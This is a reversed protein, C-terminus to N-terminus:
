IDIYYASSINKNLMLPITKIDRGDSTELNMWVWGANGSGYVTYSHLPKNDLFSEASRERSMIKDSFQNAKLPIAIDPFCLGDYCKHFISKIPASYMVSGRWGMSELEAFSVEHGVDFMDLMDPVDDEFCEELEISYEKTDSEDYKGYTIM